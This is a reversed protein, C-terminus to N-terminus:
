LRRRPSPVLSIVTRDDMRDNTFYVQSAEVNEDLKM